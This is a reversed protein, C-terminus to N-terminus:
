LRFSALAQGALGRMPQRSIEIRQQSFMDSHKALPRRWIPPQHHLDGIRGLRQQRCSRARFKHRSEAYHIVHNERVARSGRICRRIGSDRLSEDLLHQLPM